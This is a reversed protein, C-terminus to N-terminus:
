LTDASLSKKRNYIFIYIRFAYQDYIRRAVPTLLLLLEYHKVHFLIYKDM